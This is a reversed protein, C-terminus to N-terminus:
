SAEELYTERIVDSVPSLTQSVSRGEDTLEFKIDASHDSIDERSGDEKVFYCGEPQYPVMSEGIQSTKQVASETYGRKRLIEREDEEPHAQVEELQVWGIEVLNELARAASDEMPGVQLRFKGDVEIITRKSLDDYTFPRRIDHMDLGWAVQCLLSVHMSILTRAKEESHYPLQM